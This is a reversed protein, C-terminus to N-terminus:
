ESGSTSPSDSVRMLYDTGLFEDKETRYWSRESPIKMNDVIVEGKLYIIEGVEKEEDMYFKYAMLQFTDPHLYFFWVDEEFPVKVVYAEIGDLMERSFEEEIRNGENMLKMPLGWLFTYYNRLMLARQCEPSQDVGSLCEEDKVEYVLEEGRNIYKFYSNPNDLQVEYNRSSKGPRSDSFFMVKNFSKWEGSPDHYQISRQILEPGSLKTECGFAIFVPIIWIISISKM